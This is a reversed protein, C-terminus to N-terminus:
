ELNLDSVERINSTDKEDQNVLWMYMRASPM